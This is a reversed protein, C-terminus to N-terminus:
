KILSLIEFMFENVIIFGHYCYDNNENMLEPVFKNTLYLGNEFQYVLRVAKNLVYRGYFLDNQTPTSGEDCLRVIAVECPFRLNTM